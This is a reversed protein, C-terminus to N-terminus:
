GGTKFERLVDNVIEDVQDHKDMFGEIFTDIDKYRILILGSNLRAHPLGRKLWERMLREGIGAYRAALKIKAWGEM